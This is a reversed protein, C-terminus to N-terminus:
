QKLKIIENDIIEIIEKKLENSIGHKLAYKSFLEKANGFEWDVIRTQSLLENNPLKIHEITGIKEFKNKLHDITSNDELMKNAIDFYIKSPVKPLRLCLVNKLPSDIKSVIKDFENLVYSDFVDYIYRQHYRKCLDGIGRLSFKDGLVEYGTEVFHEIMKTETQMLSEYKSKADDVSIFGCDIISKVETSKRKFTVKFYLPYENPYLIEKGNAISGTIGNVPALNKNIFYKITIKSFDKM